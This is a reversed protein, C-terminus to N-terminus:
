LVTMRYMARLCTLRTITM